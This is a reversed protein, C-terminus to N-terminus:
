GARRRGDLYGTALQWAAFMGAATAGYKPNTTVGFSVTIGPVGGTPDHAWRTSQRLRHGFDDLNMERGQVQFHIMVEGGATSAAARAACQVLYKKESTSPAAIMTAGAAKIIAAAKRMAKCEHTIEDPSTLQWGEPDYLARTGAPPPADTLSLCKAFYHHGSITLTSCPVITTYHEANSGNHGFAAKSDALIISGQDATIRAQDAAPLMVLSRAEIIWRPGTAAYATTNAATM